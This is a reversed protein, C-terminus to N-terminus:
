RKQPFATAHDTTSIPQPLAVRSQWEIARAPSRINWLCYHHSRCTAAYRIGRLHPTHRHGM